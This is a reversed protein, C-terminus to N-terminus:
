RWIQKKRLTRWLALAGLFGRLGEELDVERAEFEPKKKGFRVVYGGLVKQGTQEECAQAYAAVQFSMEDYIGNSTKFDIVYVGKGGRTAVADFTGAFGHVKSCVVQETATIDLGSEAQWGDFGEMVPLLDEPVITEQGKLISDILEHSRLGFDAAQDRDEDPRKRAAELMTDIWGPTIGALTDGTEMRSQLQDLLTHRVKELAVKRSWGILAPKAVVQLITTVSPYEVGDITYTRSGSKSTRRVAKKSGKLKVSVDSVM